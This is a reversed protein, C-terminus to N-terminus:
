IGFYINDFIDISRDRPCYQISRGIRRECSYRCYNRDRYHRTRKCIEDMGRYLVDDVKSLNRVWWFIEYVENDIAKLSRKEIESKCYQYVYMKKRTFSVNRIKKMIETKNALDVDQLLLTEMAFQEHLKDVVAILQKQLEVKQELLLEKEYAQLIQYGTSEASILIQQSVTTKGDKLIQSGGSKLIKQTKSVVFLLAFFIIKLAM